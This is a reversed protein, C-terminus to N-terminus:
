DKEKWRWAQHPIIWGRTPFRFMFGGDTIFNRPGGGSCGRSPAGLLLGRDADYLDFALGEAASFTYPGILIALKGRYNLEVYPEAVREGGEM